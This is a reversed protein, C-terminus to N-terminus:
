RFGCLGMGFVGRIWFGDCLGVGVVGCVRGGGVELDLFSFPVGPIALV